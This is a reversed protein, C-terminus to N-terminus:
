CARELMYYDLADAICLNHACVIYNISHFICFMMEWQYYKCALIMICILGPIDKEGFITPTKLFRNAPYSLAFVLNQFAMNQYITRSYGISDNTRHVYLSLRTNSVFHILYELFSHEIVLTNTSYCV